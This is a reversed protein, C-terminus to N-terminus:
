VYGVGPESKPPEVPGAVPSTHVQRSSSRLEQDRSHAHNLKRPRRRLMNGALNVCYGTMISMGRQSIM